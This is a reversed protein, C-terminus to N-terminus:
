YRELTALDLTLIEPEVFSTKEGVEVLLGLGRDSLAQSSGERTDEDLRMHAYSYLNETIRVLEGMDKLAEYLNKSSSVVQGKYSGFNKAMEKAKNYSEEWAKVDVFMSELDWQHEKPIDKRELIENNSAM